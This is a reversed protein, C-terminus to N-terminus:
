LWLVHDVYCHKLHNGVHLGGEDTVALVAQAVCVLLQQLQLRWYSSHYALSPTCNCSAPAQVCTCQPCWQQRQIAVCLNVPWQCYGLHPANWGALTASCLM